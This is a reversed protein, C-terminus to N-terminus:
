NSKKDLADILEEGKAFRVKKNKMLARAERIATQTKANPVTLDFPLANDKVVRTLTMRVIDSVTLGMEALIVAADNKLNEDVRARVFATAAM